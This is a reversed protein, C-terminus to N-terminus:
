LLQAAIIPTALESFNPALEKMKQITFEQIRSQEQKVALATQALSQISKLTQPEISGGSSSMASGPIRSLSLEDTFFDRLANSSYNKRDGLRVIMTLMTSPDKVVNRLEPFHLAYWDLTQEFMVNFIAELNKNTQVGRIVHADPGSLEASVSHKTQEVM